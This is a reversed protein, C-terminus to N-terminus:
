PDSCRTGLRGLLGKRREIAEDITMPCIVAHEDVLEAMAAENGNDSPDMRGIMDTLCDDSLDIYGGLMYEGVALALGRIGIYDPDARPIWVMMKVFAEKRIMRFVGHSSLIKGWLKRDDDWRGRIRDMFADIPAESGGVYQLFYAKRDM